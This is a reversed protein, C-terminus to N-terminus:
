MTLQRTDQREVLLRRMALADRVALRLFDFEVPKVLYTRAGAEICDVAMEPSDLGTLVVVSIQPDRELAWRMFERGNMGPLDLDLLLLDFRETAMQHDAEEATPVSTVTYGMQGLVKALGRRVESEDEVLLITGTRTQAALLATWGVGDGLPKDM